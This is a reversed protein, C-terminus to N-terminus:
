RMVSRTSNDFEVRLRSHIAELYRQQVGDVKTTPAKKKKAQDDKDDDGVDEDQEQDDDDDIDINAVIDSSETTSRDEYRDSITIVILPEEIDYGDSDLM